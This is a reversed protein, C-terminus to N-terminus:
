FIDWRENNQCSNKGLFSKVIRALLLPYILLYERSNKTQSVM